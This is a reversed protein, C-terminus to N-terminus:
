SVRDTSIEIRAKGDEYVSTIKIKMWGGAITEDALTVSNIPYKVIEVIDTPGEPTNIQLVIEGGGGTPQCSFKVTEPPVFVDTTVSTNTGLSGVSNALSAIRSVSLEAQYSSIQQNADNAKFYVLVLLPIFVLLVLAIIILLETSIQGKM